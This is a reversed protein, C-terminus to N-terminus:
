FHSFSPSKFLLPKGHQDLFCAGGGKSITGIETLPVGAAAAARRLAALKRPAVTALVEYGDGGTLVTEIRGAEAAVAKRAASSLPVRAVEIEAGVGSAACLKGLDGVLGDSVDMGGRANLRLAEALGNRPQPLLYRRALHHVQAPALKWCRAADPDHRLVLGLAADAITGPVVVRDGVQAGTRLVMTGRPLTGFAAISITVPGPTRDTDGGLLPCDYGRADAGLGHAFSKLWTQETEKPLALSLLFGAPKAGKAALDSLNVRLAKRAVLDAPDDPFFHVGGVLADTTLVLDCGAPPALAAADDVLRFAGPHRALPRFYKAILREEASPGRSTRAAMVERRRSSPAACSGRWSTSCRTSWAPRRASSSPTPSMSMNPSLSGRRCTAASTSSM